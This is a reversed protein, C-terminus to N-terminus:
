RYFGGDGLPQVHRSRALRLRGIQHCRHGLFYSNLCFQDAHWNASVGQGIAAACSRAAVKKLPRPNNQGPKKTAPPKFAANTLRHKRSLGSKSKGHVLPENWRVATKVLFGPEQAKWRSATAPGHEVLPLFKEPRINADNRYVKRSAICPQVQGWGATQGAKDIRDLDLDSWQEVPRDRKKAVTEARQQSIFKSVPQLGM